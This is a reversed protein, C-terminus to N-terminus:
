RDISGVLCVGLSAMAWGYIRLSVSRVFRWSLCLGEASGQVRCRLRRKITLAPLPLLCFGFPVWLSDTDPHKGGSPTAFPSFCQASNRSRARSGIITPTASIADILRRLSGHTSNSYRAGPVVLSPLTTRRAAGETGRPLIRRSPCRAGASGTESTTVAM